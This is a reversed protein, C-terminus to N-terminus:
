TPDKPKKWDKKINLNPNSSFFAMPEANINTVQRQNEVQRVLYYARNLNPLPDMAMINSRVGEFDENLKLM